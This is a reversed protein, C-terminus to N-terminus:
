RRRRSAFFVTAFVGLWLAYTQNSEGRSTLACGEDGNKTEKAPSGGGDDARGNTTEISGADPTSSQTTNPAPRAADSRVGADGRLGADGGSGADAAAISADPLSPSSDCRLEFSVEPTAVTVGSRLKGRLVARHTGLALADILDAHPLCPAYVRETGRPLPVDGPLPLLSSSFGAYPSGDVLWEYTLVEALPLASPALEVTLDAYAVKKEVSCSGARTAVELQAQQHTVRLAGLATPNPAAEVVTFQAELKNTPECSPAELELLLKTSPALEISPKLEFKVEYSVSVDVVRTLTFPVASRVDGELKSLRPMLVGADKDDALSGPRLTFVVQDRPLNGGAPFVTAGRCVTGSCARASSRPFSSVALLALCLTAAVRGLRLRPHRTM